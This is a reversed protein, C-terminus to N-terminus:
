HSVAHNPGRPELTVIKLADADVTCGLGLARGGEAPIEARDAAPIVLEMRTPAITLREDEAGAKVVTVACAGAKTQFYGVFREGGIVHNFGEIPKVTKVAAMMEAHSRPLGAGAQSRPEGAQAALTAAALLAAATLIRTM